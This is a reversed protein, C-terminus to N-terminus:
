NKEWDFTLLQLVEKRLFNSHANLHIMTTLHEAYAQGKGGDEM